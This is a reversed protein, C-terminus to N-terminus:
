MKILEAGGPIKEIKWGLRLAENEYFQRLNVDEYNSLFDQLLHTRYWEYAGIWGSNPSGKITLIQEISLFRLAQELMMELQSEWKMEPGETICPM